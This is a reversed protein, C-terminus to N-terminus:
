NQASAQLSRLYAVVDRLQKDNLAPNGGKSPMGVKTTNDPDTPSRGAKIFALLQDDTKSKVFPSRTLDKGLGKVGTADKGHCAMCSNYVKKGRTIAEPDSALAVAGTASASQEIAVAVPAAVTPPTQTVPEAAPAPTPAMLDAISEVSVEGEPVRLPEELGRVFAVIEAVDKDTFNANGGKPPMPVGSTNLPDAPARGAKIFAVLEADTSRRVLKSRLLDKGLKPMGRAYPGHCNACSTAYLRQGRAYSVLDVPSLDHQEAVAAAKAPLVRWLITTVVGYCSFTGILCLALLVIDNIRPREAVPPAGRSAPSTDQAGQSAGQNAQRVGSESTEHVKTNM